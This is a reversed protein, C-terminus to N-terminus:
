EGSALNPNAQEWLEPNKQAKLIQVYFLGALGVAILIPASLMLYISLEFGLALGGSGSDASGAIADKCNPCAAAQGAFPLLGVLGWFVVKCRIM